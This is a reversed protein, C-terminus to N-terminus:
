FTDNGYFDAYGEKEGIKVPFYGLTTNPYSVDDYKNEILSQASLSLAGWKGNQKTRIFTFNPDILDYKFDVAIKGDPKILGWKGNLKAAAIGEVFNRSIDEYRFPIIVKGDISVYGWLNGKKLGILGDGYFAHIRAYEIPLIEKGNKDYLGCKCAGDNKWVVFLPVDCYDVTNIDFSNPFSALIRSDKGVIYTGKDDELTAVGNEFSYSSDTYKCPIIQKGSCDVFGIKEDKEVRMLGEGIISFVDDFTFPVVADNQLNVMGWKGDRKAASFGNQFYLDEDYICDIIINGKEDCVGWKDNLCINYKDEGIFRKIKSYKCPVVFVGKPNIVGYKGNLKVISNGHSFTEVEDYKLPIVVNGLKNIFGWKGNLKVAGLDSSFSKADDYKPAIKEVGNRTIYGWKGNRKAPSMAFQSFGTICEYKPSVVITKTYRNRLGMAKNQIICELSDPEAVYKGYSLQSISGLLLILIYRFVKKVM